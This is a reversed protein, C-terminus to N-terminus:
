NDEKYKELCKDIHARFGPFSFLTDCFKIFEDKTFEKTEPILFEIHAGKDCLRKTRKARDKNQSHEIKNEERTLKHESQEVKVKSKEVKTKWKLEENRLRELKPNPHLQDLLSPKETM